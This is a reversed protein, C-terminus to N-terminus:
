RLDRRVAASIMDVLLTLVLYATLTAAVGSYDFSSIQETLLLGLGGAGVLGVMVTARICVEWRYLLYATLRPLADPIVGYLFVQLGTAGQARLAKLPRQDLNETVEAMLRGLVGTTYLALAFAGPLIGPFFVFLLILAWIPAPVGRLFLLLGRTFIFVSLGWLSRAGVGTRPNLVGGPLIMSNAAFFSLLLGGVGAGAMALISMALTQGSITVIGSLGLAGLDPPLARGVVDRFLELTRPSVLHTFEAGVYWFSFLLLVLAGILSGRVFWRQSAEEKKPHREGIRIDIQQVSGFRRRLVSSWFDTLGSLLILAFLLTWIQEYRLSQLSLFLEYGLGGAGIIGLVAASRISCEFRYVAYSILDPLAQPFLTYMVAKLPAVGSNRVATLAHRPTEDLLESFVKATIAGFPIGIALIGVLPKAGLISVFFLGWILEHLARPFALAARVAFWPARHRISITLGNRRSEFVSRWWVESGLIGGVVGLVVSLATGCVAFAVTTLAAEAVLRLFEPSLEPHYGARFFDVLLPFGGENVLEASFVGAQQMSWAVAILALLAWFTRRDTFLSSATFAAQSPRAQPYRVETDTSTDRSDSDPM